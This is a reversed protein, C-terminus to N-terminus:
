RAYFEFILSLKVPPQVEELTPEGVVEGTLASKDLSLWSPPQYKKLQKESDQFLGSGKAKEKVAIKDEKEVRYSPIDVKRGNVLIHGHSVLQRAQPRTEALGLRYIVNDLRKELKSILVNAIDTDGSRELVNEVYRRFQRERLNYLEKLEQKERLMRGYESLGRKRRKRQKQGVFRRSTTDATAM